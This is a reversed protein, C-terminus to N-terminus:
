QEVMADQQQSSATDCDAVDVNNCLGSMKVDARFNDIDFSKWSRGERTIYTSATSVPVDFKWRVLRHDSIGVDLVEIDTPQIDSHTIVVDLVGGRDHTPQDVHQQM